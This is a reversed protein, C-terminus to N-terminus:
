GVYGCRWGPHFYSSDAYWLLFGGGAGSWIGIMGLVVGLPIGLVTGDSLLGASSFFGGQAIEDWAIAELAQRSIYVCRYQHVSRWSGARSGGCVPRGHVGYCSSHATSGLSAEGTAATGMLLLGTTLVVFFAKLRPSDL